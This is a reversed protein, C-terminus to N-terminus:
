VKRIIIGEEFNEINNINIWTEELERLRHFRLITDDDHHTLILLFEYEPFDIKLKISWIELLKKAFRLGELPHKKFTKSIDIMHVHSESAEFGTRDGFQQIIHELNIEINDETYKKILICGEVEVFNPWVVDILESKDHYKLGHEKNLIENIKKNSAEM